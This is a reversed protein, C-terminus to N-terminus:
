KSISGTTKTRLWYTIVGAGMAALGYSWKPMDPFMTPTFYGLGAAMAGLVIQVHGWNITKSKWWKNTM